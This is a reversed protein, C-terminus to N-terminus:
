TEHRILYRQYEVMRALAKVAREPTEYFVGKFDHGAVPCVTADKEETVISVGVVPKAFREMLQVITEIYRDEFDTVTSVMGDLVDPAYSPDAQAVSDTLRRLFIRRGMIGLNIVADCGEWQLLAEMVSLPLSLDREGVLDIPNSRSWYPPLIKDMREILDTTLEPIELGFQSCLDATVVGWGGGLTMIAVRNGRPLPLSSFAASLDLLEMPQDVKVIGAQTCAADFLRTDSAMAGTHSAAARRGARTQGGKLLVIPKKRSVRRASEFFRRGQKVSEIYLMVTQTLDDVEFGELYDEITLMAENGSGSFARIGIGQSEAFALLQVGMNGSQSVMATPGAMPRVAVGVCYFNIYPNCIGMTNPGLIHIGAERASEVLQRELTRGDSGTEGFGSTIIVVKDVGKAKLQPILDMVAAAPVTVIALDVADPIEALSRYAPKGAITGGKPNVAHIKGQYGGSITNCILTHGWKGVTSSAGIFAVSRPYFLAHIASPPVPRMDTAHKGPRSLTILADVATLTGSPGAILPNIDIEAIEPCDVAIASLAMLTQLLAKRDVAAQGRFAGLMTRSRIGEVMEEADQESLPALRFVVDSVAETLIGGLGFLIAPGFQPDRFLGAVFERDGKIQPQVLVKIEPATQLIQDAARGVSQRDALNVHVLGRETKHLLNEGVGKLVVPFGIDEAAALAETQTAAVHEAVVPVGYRHLVRKSETEMLATRGSELICGVFQNLDV